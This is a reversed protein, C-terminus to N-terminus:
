IKLSISIVGSSYILINFSIYSNINYLFLNILSKGNNRRGYIGIHPKSEKGKTM